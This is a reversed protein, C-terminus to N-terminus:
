FWYYRNSEKDELGQWEGKKERMRHDIMWEEAGAILKELLEFKRNIKAMTIDALRIWRHEFVEEPIGSQRKKKEMFSVEKTLKRCQEVWGNYEDGHIRAKVAKHSLLAQHRDLLTKLKQIKTHCADTREKVFMTDSSQTSTHQQSFSLSALTM